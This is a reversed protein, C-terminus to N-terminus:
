FCESYICSIVSHNEGKATRTTITNKGTNIKERAATRTEEPDRESRWERRWVWREWSPLACDQKDWRIFCAYHLYIIEINLVCVMDVSDTQSIYPLSWLYLPRKTRVGRTLSANARHLNNDKHLIFINSSLLLLRFENLCCFANQSVQPVTLIFLVCNVNAVDNM